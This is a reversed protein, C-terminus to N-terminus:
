VTEAPRRGMSYYASEEGQRVLSGNTGREAPNVYGLFNHLVRWDSQVSFVLDAMMGGARQRVPGSILPEGRFVTRVRAGPEALWGARRHSRALTVQMDSIANARITGELKRVDGLPGLWRFDRDYVDTRFLPESM